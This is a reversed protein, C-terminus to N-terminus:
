ELCGDRSKEFVDLSLLVDTKLYLMMYDKIIECGTNNWCDIAQKYEKDTIGRQKLKSYFAEKTPLKTNKLKDTSDFWEYPFIGKRRELKFKNLAVCERDSLKKSIADLRLPHFFRFIDLAKAHGMDICIFNEYTKTIVKLRVKTALKTTFLHKDYNTPNNAFLPVFCNKAQHNCKNHAYGRFKGNLHDHDSVFDIFGSRPAEGMEEDCYYCVNTLPTISDEKLSINLSFIEKFLKNYYSMRGIFWDVVNDGCFSEYEDELIDPYASKIYLGCAIPLHKGEKRICEFDYFMAFPVRNNYHFKDFKLYDNNHFTRRGTDNCMELLKNKADETRLSM